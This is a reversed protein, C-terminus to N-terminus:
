VEGRTEDWRRMHVFGWNPLDKLLGLKVHTAYPWFEAITFGQINIGEPREVLHHLSFLHNHTLGRDDCQLLLSHPSTPPMPETKEWVQTVPPEDGKDFVHMILRYKINM